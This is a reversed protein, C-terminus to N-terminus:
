SNTAAAELNEQFSLKNKLTLVLGCMGVYLIVGGWFVVGATLWFAKM